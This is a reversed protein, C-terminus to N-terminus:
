VDAETEAGADDVGTVIMVLEGSAHSENAAATSSAGTAPARAHRQRAAFSANSSAGTVHNFNTYRNTIVLRVPAATAEDPTYVEADPADPASSSTAAAHSTMAPGKGRSHAFGLTSRLAEVRTHSPHLLGALAQPPCAGAEPEADAAAPQPQTAMKAEISALFVGVLEPATNLLQTLSGRSPLQLLICATSATATYGCV